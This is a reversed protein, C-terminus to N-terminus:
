SHSWPIHSSYTTVNDAPSDELKRVDIVGPNFSWWGRQSRAGQKIVPMKGHVIPQPRDSPEFHEVYPLDILIKGNPYYSPPIPPWSPPAKMSIPGERPVVKVLGDTRYTAIHSALKAQAKVEKKPPDSQDPFDANVGMNTMFQRNHRSVWRPDRSM